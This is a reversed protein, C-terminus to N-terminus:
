AGMEGEAFVYRNHPPNRRRRGSANDRCWCNATKVVTVVADGCLYRVLDTGAVSGM